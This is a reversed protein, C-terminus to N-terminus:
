RVRRWSEICLWCFGGSLLAWGWQSHNLAQVCFYGNLIALAFAFEPSQLFQRM